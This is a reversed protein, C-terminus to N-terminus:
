DVVEVPSFGPGEFGQAKIQEALDGRVIIPKLFNSFRFIKLDPDLRSAKIVVKTVLQVISPKIPNAKANSAVLDLADQAQLLHLIRYGTSAVRKKHNLIAVPLLELNSVGQKQVWEVLRPSALALFNMNALLDTLKTDKPYQPDMLAVVEDPFVKLLPKDRLMTMGTPLNLISSIVCANGTPVAELKFYKM